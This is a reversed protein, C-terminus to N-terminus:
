SEVFVFIITHLLLCTKFRWSFQTLYILKVDVNAFVSVNLLNFLSTIMILNVIVQEKESFMTKM